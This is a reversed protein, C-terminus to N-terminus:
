TRLRKLWSFLISHDKWVQFYPVQRAGFNRRVKEIAPIMSGQFDFRNLHLVEKTYKIAEWTLLIGAGSSRLAPDDGAMHYYASQQDWLLYVVSHIREQEDVAFFIKRCDHQELVEDYSKLYSFPIVFPKGQRSFSMKKVRYFDDLSRETVVRVVSRAKKLKNNRYDSCINAYVQDLDRLDDIVYSYMTRQRYGKWYFPLWDTVDYHLNQDFAAVKPLQEILERVIKHAKGATRFKSTLYPGMMKTLWPMSIYRFPGKSKIYYPLAGVIQGGREALVVHWDGDQCVADLYWPQIFLPIGPESQCFSQYKAKVQM